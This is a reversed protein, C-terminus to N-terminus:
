GRGDARGGSWGGEKKHIRKNSDIITRSSHRTLNPDGSSIRCRKVMIACWPTKSRATPRTSSTLDGHSGHTRGHTSTGNTGVHARGGDSGWRVPAMFCPIHHRIYTTSFCSLLSQHTSSTSSSRRGCWLARAKARDVTFRHDLPHTRIKQHFPGIRHYTDVSETLSADPNKFSTGCNHYAEAPNSARARAHTLPAQTNLARPVFGRWTIGVLRRQPVIILVASVSVSCCQVCTTAILSMYIYICVECAVLCVVATTVGCSAHMGTHYPKLGGGGEGGERGKRWVKM